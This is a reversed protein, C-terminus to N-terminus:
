SDLQEFSSHKAVAQRQEAMFKDFEEKDRAQRLRNLFAKFEREQEELHDLETKRYADFANNGSSQSAAAGSWSARGEAAGRLNFWLGRSVRTDERWARTRGSGVLFAFIVLGLPWAIWFALVTLGLWATKGYEDMRALLM